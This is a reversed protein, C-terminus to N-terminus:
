LEKNEMIRVSCLYSIGLGAIAFFLIGIYLTFQSGYIVRDLLVEVDVGLQLMAVKGLLFLILAVGGVILMIAMRGKEAEFRLEVPISLVLILVVALISLAITGSWEQWTYSNGQVLAVCFSILGACIITAGMLLGGFVYKERVYQRRSFPLTFLYTMGNDYEDYKITSVAFISILSSAYGLAFFPNKYIAAFAISMFMIVGLFLRQNKLLMFDKILLGKM